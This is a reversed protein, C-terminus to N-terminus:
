SENKQRKLIEVARPYVEYIPDTPRGARGSRPVSIVRFWGTEICEGIAANALEETDLFSWNKIYLDRARFKRRVEGDRIKKLLKKASQLSM